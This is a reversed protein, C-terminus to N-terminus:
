GHWDVPYASQSGSIGKLEVQRPDGFRFEGTSEALEYLLSSVLIEGPAAAGSLRSATIVSRGLLDTGDRVPEGTHLGIHVMIPEEPHEFGYKEFARQLAVACRLGKTASTFAVMFGDGQSKVEHGGHNAVEARVIANHARLLDHAALDGLRETMASYGVIDSFMITVTGEPLFPIQEGIELVPEEVEPLVPKDGGKRVRRKPSASSDPKSRVTVGGMIPFALVSIVPSGPLFPVDAIRLHKGGMIPLGTLEVAIGEPVIIDIGGMVAVATVHVEPADIQARRFDLECGGMVAVATVSRGVRWRGKAKSGSMVALVLRRGRARRTPAVPAPALDSMLVDLDGRTRAELAREMRDAFEDLMLSGDTVHQHLLEVATDRDHDSVRIESPDPERGDSVAATKDWVSTRAM